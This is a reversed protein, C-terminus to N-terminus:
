NDQVSGINVIECSGSSCALEQSGSTGDESEYLSLVDWNITKPMTETLADYQDQTIDEYPAQQYTHDSYPLFSIGGVDDFNDYVWAAVDVWVSEKVSITVSPNHETWNNRFMRWVELHEVASLDHRTVAGEPAAIPFSFVVTDHPKMVDPECPVGSDKIMQTLPDKIDGRVRRIYHQSHWPHIGSSTLTLQSTTGAPKVVTIAASAPIGLIAAHKENVSIAYDKLDRLHKATDDSVTSTLKNGFIGTMSVGLLREEETISKWGKRLYKFDTLSSQWTGLITALEVKDRM